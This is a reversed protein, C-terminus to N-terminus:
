PNLKFPVTDSKVKGTWAERGDDPGAHNEYFAQLSYEGPQDLAYYM